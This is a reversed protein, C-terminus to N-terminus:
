CFARENNGKKPETPIRNTERWSSEKTYLNEREGERLAKDHKVDTTTKPDQIRSNGGKVSVIIMADDREM